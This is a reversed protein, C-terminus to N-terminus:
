DEKEIKRVLNKIIIAKNHLKIKITITVTIVIKLEFRWVAAKKIVWLPLPQATAMPEIRVDSKVTQSSM